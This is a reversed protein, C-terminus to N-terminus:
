SWDGCGYAMFGADGPKIEVVTPSNGNAIIGDIGGGKFHKVRAWYCMDSADGAARYRGPKIHKGVIYAGDSFSTEPKDPFTENVAVWDGCGQTEFGTTSKELTVIASSSNGNQIVDDLEGSFGKLTAWYCMDTDETSRYTGAPIDKGVEYTGDGYSESEPEEEEAPAPEEAAAEGGGQQENEASESAAPESSTDTEGGVASAIIMVVVIALVATFIKHRAFWSKKKETTGPTPQDTM